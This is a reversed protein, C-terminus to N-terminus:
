YWIEHRIKEAAKELLALDHKTFGAGEFRDQPIFISNPYNEKYYKHLIVEMIYADEENEFPFAHVLEVTGYRSSLANLRSSVRNAKGVKIMNKDKLFVIYACPKYNFDTMLDLVDIESYDIEAVPMSSVYKKVPPKEIEYLAKIQVVRDYYRPANDHIEWYEKVEPCNQMVILIQEYNYKRGSTTSVIRMRSKCEEIREFAMKLEMM